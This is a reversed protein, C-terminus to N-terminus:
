RNVVIRVQRVEAETVIQIIYVGSPSSPPLEILNSLLMADQWNEKYVVGGFIDMVSISLRQSASLEINVDFNGDSPNPSVNLKKIISQHGEVNSRKNPDFPSINLLVSKSYECGGFYGTMTVNYNGAELVNLQPSWVDDNLVLIAPDFVWDISDPRPTSIEKVILTDMANERTAVIFDPEPKSDVTKVEATFSSKCDNADKVWITHEGPSVSAFIASEQYDLTTNLSFEYPFTGGEVKTRLEGTEEGVCVPIAIASVELADPQEITFSGQQVCGQQDSVELSYDGAGLKSREPAALFSDSWKYTYPMMGGTVVAKAEGDMGEFCKVDSKQILLIMPSNLLAVTAELSSTCGFKDEITIAYDGPPLGTFLPENQIVADNLIYKYPGSGGIPNVLLTGSQDGYCKVDTKSLLEIDMSSSPETLLIQETAVCGRGDKVFITHRGAELGDLKFDNQFTIGDSSYVYDSYGDGNGGSANVIAFGKAGFCPVNFGNFDSLTYAFTLPTPPSTVVIPQNFPAECGQSDVVLLSYRGEPLNVLRTDVDITGSSTTYHYSYPEKGGEASVLVRGADEFCIKDSITVSLISLLPPEVIEIEESQASCGFDNVVRLRYRGASLNGASTSTEPLTVWSGSLMIEWLFRDSATAGAITAEIRGDDFGNCSIDTKLLSISVQDPETITLIDPYVLYDLCGSQARRKTLQYSAPVLGLFELNASPTIIEGTLQNVLEYSLGAGGENLLLISGNDAGFCTIRNTTVHDAPLSLQAPAAISINSTFAPCQDHSTDIIKVVYDGQSLGTQNWREATTNTLEKIIAGGKELQFTYNGGGQDVIVDIAGNAPNSCSLSAGQVTAKILIPEPIDVDESVTQGCGDTAIAKYTGATLGTFQGTDNTLDAGGKRLTYTYDPIGGTVAIAIKGDSGGACSVPTASTSQSLTSIEGVTLTYFSPCVGANGGENTVMLTYEGPAVGTITFENGSVRTSVGGCDDTGEPNPTCPTTDTGPRLSYIYEGLGSVEVSVEGDDNNPCSNTVDVNEIAPPVPSLNFVGFEGSGTTFESEFTAGSEAGSLVTMRTKARFEVTTNTTINRLDSYNAPVVTFSSYNFANLSKGLYSWSTNGAKRYEWISEFKYTGSNTVHVPNLNTSHSLYLTSNACVQTKVSAKPIFPKPVSYRFELRVAFNATLFEDTRDGCFEYVFKNLVGPPFDYYRFTTNPVPGCHGDDGSEYQCRSSTDDEWGETDLVPYATDYTLVMSEDRSYYGGPGVLRLSPQNYLPFPLTFWKPGGPDDKRVCIDGTRDGYEYNILWTYDDDGSETSYMGTYFDKIELLEVYMSGAPASNQAFANPLGICMAVLLGCSWGIEKRMNHNNLV